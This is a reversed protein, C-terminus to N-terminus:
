PKKTTSTGIRRAELLGIELFPLEQTIVTVTGEMPDAQGISVLRRAAKDDISVKSAEGSDALAGFYEADVFYNGPPLQLRLVERGQLTFEGVRQLQSDGRRADDV